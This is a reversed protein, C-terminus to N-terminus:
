VKVVNVGFIIRVSFGYVPAIPEITDNAYNIQQQIVVLHKSEFPM